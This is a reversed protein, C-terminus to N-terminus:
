SQKWLLFLCVILSIFVCVIFYSSCVLSLSVNFLLYSRSRRSRSSEAPLHGMLLAGGSIIIIIIIMMLIMMMILIIITITIIIMISINIIMIIIIIIIADSIASNGRLPAPTSTCTTSPAPRKTVISSFASNQSFTHEALIDCSTHTM